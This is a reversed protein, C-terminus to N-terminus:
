NVSFAEFLGFNGVANVASIFVDTEIQATLLKDLLQSRTHYSADFNTSPLGEQCSKTLIDILARIEERVKEHADQLVSLVKESLMSATMHMGDPLNQSMRELFIILADPCSAFVELDKRLPCSNIVGNLELGVQNHVEGEITVTQMQEHDFVKSRLGQIGYISRVNPEYEQREHFLSVRTGLSCSKYHITRPQKLCASLDIGVVAIVKASINGRPDEIFQEKASDKQHICLLSVLLPEHQYKVDGELVVEVSSGPSLHRIMSSKMSIPKLDVFAFVVFDYLAERSELTLALSLSSGNYNSRHRLLIISTDKDTSLGVEMATKGNSSNQGKALTATSASTPYLTSMGNLFMDGAQTPVTECSKGNLSDLCRFILAEKILIQAHYLLSGHM